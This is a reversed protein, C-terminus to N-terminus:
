SPFQAVHEKDLTKSIYFLDFSSMERVEPAFELDFKKIHPLYVWVYFITGERSRTVKPHIYSSSDAGFLDHMLFGIDNRALNLQEVDTIVTKLFERAAYCQRPHNQAKVDLGVNLYSQSAAPKKQSVSHPTKCLTLM